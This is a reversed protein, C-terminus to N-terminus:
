GLPAISLDFENQRATAGYTLIHRRGIVSTNSADINYTNTKFAFEIPQGDVGIALLNASDADLFNAFAGVHLAGRSWDGKAYKMSAGSEIDFPGIGSHVLGDTGAYGANLSLYSRDSVDYDIRLDAKPQETGENEFAPYPTSTGPISGTPRDFADQRYYSTSFKYGTRGSAGAHMVSGLLTGGDGAGITVTTGQMESPRKTILNIVGSMANAGWVASGPGRVVEIQKIETVDVPLFDWMVFGFFDLYLTRGDLMVLQSTALSNTAARATVQIDRASIQTVNVGPVTRLIDGYDDVPMQELEKSTIVSVAAPVDHVMQETRSATVVMVEDLRPEPATPTTGPEQAAAAVTFLFSLLVLGRVRM